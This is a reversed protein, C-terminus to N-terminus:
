LIFKVVPIYMYSFVCNYTPNLVIRSKLCVRPTRYEIGWPYPPVVMSASVEAICVTCKGRWVAGWMQAGPLLDKPVADWGMGRAETQFWSIPLLFLLHFPLLLFLSPGQNGRERGALWWPLLWLRRGRLQDEWSCLERGKRRLGPPSTRVRASSCDLPGEM